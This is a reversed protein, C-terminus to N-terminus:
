PSVKRKSAAMRQDRNNEAEGPAKTVWIVIAIRSYTFMLVFLPLFYQLVMIVISYIYRHRMDPWDEICHDRVVGAHDPVTNIRSLIAVPLPVALSLFWIISIVIAAQKTTMRPRLPYIIAIYRDLSIALFTFASLFVTVVQAYTVIPCLIPGFPWYQMLLNSIFTFPICIVSMMIDSCALNVIFYNTVTRMRQYALIIYCVIVNGGVSLVSVTTYMLIIIVQAYMPLAFGVGVDMGATENHTANLVDTTATEQEPVTEVHYPVLETQNAFTVGM